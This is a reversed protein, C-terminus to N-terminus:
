MAEEFYHSKARPGEAPSQAQLQIRARASPTMGFEQELRTLQASLKAAISV